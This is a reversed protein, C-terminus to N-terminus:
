NNKKGVVDLDKTRVFLMDVEGMKPKQKKDFYAQEENTWHNPNNDMKPKPIEKHCNQCYKENEPSTIINPNNCCNM